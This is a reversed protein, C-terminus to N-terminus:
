STESLLVTDRANSDEDRQAVLFWTRMVGKGKVEVDGRHEFHFTETLRERVERPVQIRGQVGTSEM